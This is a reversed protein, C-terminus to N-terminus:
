GPLTKSYIEFVVPDKSKSAANLCAVNKATKIHQKFDTTFASRPLQKRCCPCALALWGATLKDFIKKLKPDGSKGAYQLCTANDPKELHRSMNGRSGFDKECCPCCKNEAYESQSALRAGEMEQMDGSESLMDLCEKNAPNRIHIVMAKKLHVVTMSEGCNPCKYIRASNAANQARHIPTILAGVFKRIAADVRAGWEHGPQPKADSGTRSNRIVPKQSFWLRRVDKDTDATPPKAKFWAHTEVSQKSASERVAQLWGRFAESEKSQTQLTAMKWKDYWAQYTLSDKRHTQPLTDYWGLFEASDKPLLSPRQVAKFFYHWVADSTLTTGLLGSYATLFATQGCRFTDSCVITNSIMMSRGKPKGIFLM